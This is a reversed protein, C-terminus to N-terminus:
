NVVSPKALPDSGEEEKEAQPLSESFAKIVIANLEAFQRFNLGMIMPEVDERTIDPQHTILGAWLLDGADKLREKSGKDAEAALREEKTRKDKGSTIDVGTLDEYAWIAPIPFALTFEQKGITVPFDTQLPSGNQM